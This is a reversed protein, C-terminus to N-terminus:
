LANKHSFNSNNPSACVYGAMYAAEVLFPKMIKLYPVDNIKIATFLKTKVYNLDEEYIGPQIVLKEFSLIDLKM